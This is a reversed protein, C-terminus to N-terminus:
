YPNRKLGGCRRFRGGSIIYDISRGILKIILSNRRSLYAELKEERTMGMGFWVEDDGEEIADDDFVEGDVMPDDKGEELNGNEGVVSGRYSNFRLGTSLGGLGGGGQTNIQSKSRRLIDAEEKLADTLDGDEIEMEM